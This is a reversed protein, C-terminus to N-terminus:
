ALPEMARVRESFGPVARLHDPGWIESFTLVTNISGARSPLGSIDDTTQSATAWKKSRFFNDEAGEADPGVTAM